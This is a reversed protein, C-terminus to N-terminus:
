ATERKQRRNRQTIQIRKGLSQKLVETKLSSQDHWAIKRLTHLEEKQERLAQPPSNKPRGILSRLHRRLYRGLPWKKKGHQLTIPVDILEKELNHTLLTSAVEHMMGAGIGPRLSMRSFPPHRNEYNQAATYNKSIYGAVYGASHEELRGVHSSGLGWTRRYLDCTPCCTARRLDTEGRDCTPANFVAIHYHPRGNLSGYEGCAYYRIKRPLAKRLRKIFRQLVDPDLSLNGPLKTDEYTLTLFANTEHQAAELLIRHTWEKRRKIRCPLCTGCGYAGDTLITPRECATLM